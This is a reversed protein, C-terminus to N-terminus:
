FIFNSVSGTYEKLCGPGVTFGFLTVSSLYLLVAAPYV